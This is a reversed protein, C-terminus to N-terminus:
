RSRYPHRWERPWLRRFLWPTPSTAQGSPRCTATCSSSVAVPWPERGEVQSLFFREGILEGVVALVQPLRCVAQVTSDSDLLSHRWDMGRPVPWQNSPMVGADFVARLEGLWEAPIAQRLLVYGQRHLQERDTM